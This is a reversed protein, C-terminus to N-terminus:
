LDHRAGTSQRDQRRGAGARRTRSDDHDLLAVYRGSALKLGRQHRKLHRRGTDRRRLHIRPDQAVHRELAAVVEADTSGDDVLCLEWDGFTQGRVSVIAEELMQTAPRPGSDPGLDISAGVAARHGLAIPGPTPAPLPPAHPDTIVPNLWIARAVSLPRLVGRVPRQAPAHQHQPLRCSVRLGRPRSWDSARLTGSWIERRQGTRDTVAVSARVAGRGDRWDHPLLM